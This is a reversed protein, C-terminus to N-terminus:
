YIKYTLGDDQTWGLEISESTYTIMKLGNPAASPASTPAADTTIVKTASEPSSGAVNIATVTFDYSTTATLGSITYTRVNGLDATEIWMSSSSLKYHLKYSTAGTSSSWNLRITRDTIAVQALGTPAAPVFITTAAISDALASSGASNVATVSIHYSTRETLGTITHTNVDGLLVSETWVTASTLKHHVKYDTAGTKKTWTVTMQVDRIDSVILGTVKTLLTTVTIKPPMESVSNDKHATVSFDYATNTVLGTKTYTTVEGLDITESWNSDSALKYCVKYTHGAVLTWGITISTDTKTTTTLGTPTAPTAFTTVTIETAKQSSGSSNIATVSVHYETSASLGTITHSAIDGLDASDTWVTSTALKYHVM